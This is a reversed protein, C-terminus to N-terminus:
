APADLPCPRPGSGDARPTPIPCKRSSRNNHNRSPPPNTFSLPAFVRVVGGGMNGGLFFLGAKFIKLFAIGKCHSVLTRPIAKDVDIYKPAVMRQLFRVSRDISKDLTFPNSM